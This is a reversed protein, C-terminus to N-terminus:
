VFRIVSVRDEKNIIQEGNAHSSDFIVVDFLYCKGKIVLSESLSGFSLNVLLIYNSSGVDWNFMEPNDDSDVNVGNELEIVVRNIDSFDDTLKNSTLQLESANDYGLPITIVEIAM